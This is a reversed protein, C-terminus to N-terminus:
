SAFCLEFDASVDFTTDFAGYKKFYERRAYFTPHAPHWGKQSAGKKHQSGIWTRTIKNTDNADVFHLNGYVCGVDDKCFESAIDELVHEDIYLDDSNLIGVVDGTAAKIGQNIADYIGKDYCSIVKMRDAFAPQYEACIKFTDDKSGGDKIILKYDTYSQKLVSKLTDRVTASSNLTVTIISIKM